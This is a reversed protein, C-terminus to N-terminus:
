PEPVRTNYKRGCVGFFDIASSKMHESTAADLAFTLCLLPALDHPDRSSKCANEMIEFWRRVDAGDEDEERSFHRELFKAHATALRACVTSRKPVKTGEPITALEWLEQELNTQEEQEAHHGRPDQIDIGALDDQPPREADPEVGPGADMRKAVATPSDASPASSPAGCACTLIAISVLILRDSRVDRM